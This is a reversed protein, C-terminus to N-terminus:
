GLSLDGKELLRRKYREILWMVTGGDAISCDSFEMDENDYGIVIVASCKGIHRELVRDPDSNLSTVIGSEIVEGM